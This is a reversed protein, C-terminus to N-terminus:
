TGPNGSLNLLAATGASSAAVLGIGGVTFLTLLVRRSLGTQKAPAASGDTPFPGPIPVLSPVSTAGVAPVVSNPPPIPPVLSATSASMIGASKGAQELATAFAQASAFRHAPDKALAMMIVQEVETPISAVKTRLSPSESTLHATAQESFPGQFPTEGC